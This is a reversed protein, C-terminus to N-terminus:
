VRERCSARGIKPAQIAEAPNVNLKKLIMMDSKSIRASVREDKPIKSSM